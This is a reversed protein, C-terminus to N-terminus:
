RLVKPELFKALIKEIRLLSAEVAGHPPAEGPTIGFHSALTEILAVSGEIIMRSRRTDAHMTYDCGREFRVVGTFYISNDGAMVYVPAHAAGTKPADLLIKIKPNDDTM